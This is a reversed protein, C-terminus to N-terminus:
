AEARANASEAAREALGAIWADVDAERWRPVRGIRIPAPFEGRKAMRWIHTRTLKTRATVDAYTLLTEPM